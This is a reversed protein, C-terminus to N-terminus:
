LNLRRNLAELHDKSKSNRAPKHLLLNPMVMIAKFAVDQLPSNHIWSNILRTTEEIYQKRSKGSPLLFINKRWFVVVDYVANLMKVFQAEENEGCEPPRSNIVSSIQTKKNFLKEHDYLVNFQLIKMTMCCTSSFFM